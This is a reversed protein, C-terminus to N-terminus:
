TTIDPKAEAIDEQTPPPTPVDHAIVPTTFQITQIQPQVMKKLEPLPEPPKTQSIDVLTVEDINIKGAEKPKLSNALAVGTFALLTVASTIVLAKTIRKPYTKRLEYAGYEKNRDDFLLDLINSSLIKNPEM